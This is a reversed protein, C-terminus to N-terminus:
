GGYGRGGGGGSFAGGYSSPSFVVGGQRVPPYYHLLGLQYEQALRQRELDLQQQQYPTIQYPLDRGAEGTLLTNALALRELYDKESMRVATSAGAPGGVMGRGAAVEASQRAIDPVLGKAFLGSVADMVAPNPASGVPYTTIPANGSPQFMPYPNDGSDVPKYPPIGSPGVLGTGLLRSGGSSPMFGAYTPLGTPGFSPSYGPTYGAPTGAGGGVHPAWSPLNGSALNRYYGANLWSNAGVYPVPRVAYDLPDGIFHTDAFVDTIGAM